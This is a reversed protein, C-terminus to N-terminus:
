RVLRARRALSFPPACPRGAQSEFPEIAKIRIHTVAEEISDTAYTLSLDSASIPL